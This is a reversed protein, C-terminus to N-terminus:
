TLNILNLKNTEVYNITISKSEIKFIYALNILLKIQNIMNKISPKTQLKIRHLIINKKGEEKEICKKAMLSGKFEDNSDGICIIKCEQQNNDSIGYSIDLYFPYIM